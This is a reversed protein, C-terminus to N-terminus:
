QNQDYISTEHCSNRGCQCNSKYTEIAWSKIARSLSLKLEIDLRVGESIREEVNKDRSQVAVGNHSVQVRAIINTADVM